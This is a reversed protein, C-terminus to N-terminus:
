ARYSKEVFGLAPDGVLMWKIWTKHDQYHRWHGRRWHCRRRAHTADECSSGRPEARYRRALSVVHYDRLPTKGKRVRQRNLKESVRRMERIAVEADLMVCVARIQARVFPSIARDIASGSGGFVGAGPRLRRRDEWERNDGFWHGRYGVSVFNYLEGSERQGVFALVRVDNILFEFCCKEFPLPPIEDGDFEPTGAFAAAWDHEVVFSQYSAIDMDDVQPFKARQNMYDLLHHKSSGSPRQLRLPQTTLRALTESAADAKEDRPEEMIVEQAFGVATKLIARKEETSRGLLDGEARIKKQDLYRQVKYLLGGRTRLLDGLFKDVQEPTAREVNERATEILRPSMEGTRMLKEVDSVQFERLNYNDIKKEHAVVGSLVVGMANLLIERKVTDPSWFFEEHSRIGKKRYERRLFHELDTGEWVEVISRALVTLGESKASKIKQIWAECDAITPTRGEELIYSGEKM